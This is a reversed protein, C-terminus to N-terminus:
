TRFLHDIHDLISRLIQHRILGCKLSCETKDSNIHLDISRTLYEPSHLTPKTQIILNCLLVLSDAYDADTIKTAPYRKSRRPHLTFGNDVSIRLVYDLCFIRHALTDGQLVRAVIEFFDTNSDPSRVTPYTSKYLRMIVNVTEDPLGYALLMEEIKSQISDFAERLVLDIIFQIFIYILADLDVPEM